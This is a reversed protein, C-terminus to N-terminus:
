SPAVVRLGLTRAADAMRRDYTVVVDLRTGLARAAALHIADLSRLMPPGLSAADRLLPDDVTILDVRDLLRRGRTVVGAGAGRVARLVEVRALACSAWRPRDRLWRRLAPTEGEDVLLKVLASSDVYVPRPPGSPTRGAAPGGSDVGSGSVRDGGYTTAPPADVPDSM